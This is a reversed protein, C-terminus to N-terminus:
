PLGPTVDHAVAIDAHQDGRRFAQGQQLFRQRGAVIQAVHHHEISGVRQRGQAGQINQAPAGQEVCGLGRPVPHDVGINDSDKVGRAAGALGLPPARVAVHHGAGLAHGAVQFVM